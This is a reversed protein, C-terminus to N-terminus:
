RGLFSAAGEAKKLSKYTVRFFGELLRRLLETAGGILIYNSNTYSAESNKAISIGTFNLNQAKQSKETNKEMFLFFPSIKIKTCKTSGFGHM